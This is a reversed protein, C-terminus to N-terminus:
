HEKLATWAMLAESIKGNFIIEVSRNQLVKLIDSEIVMSAVEFKCEHALDYLARIPM